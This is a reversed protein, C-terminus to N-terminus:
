RPHAHPAELQAMLANMKDMGEPTMSYGKGWVSRICGPGIAKRAKTIYVRLMNLSPDETNTVNRLAPRASLLWYRDVPRGKAKWLTLLFWAEMPACKLAIRIADLQEERTQLGLEEELWTVRLELEECRACTM